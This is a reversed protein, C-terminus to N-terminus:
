AAIVPVPTNRCILSSNIRHLAKPSRFKMYITGVQVKKRTVRVLRVTHSENAMKSSGIIAIRAIRLQVPFVPLRRLPRTPLLIFLSPCLATTLTNHSASPASTAEQPRNTFNHAAMLTIRSDSRSFWRDDLSRWVRPVPIFTSVLPYFFNNLNPKHAVLSRANAWGSCSFTIELSFRFILTVVVQLVFVRVKEAHISLRVDHTAKEVLTIECERGEFCHENGLVM